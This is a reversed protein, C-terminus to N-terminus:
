KLIYADSRSDNLVKTRLEAQMEQFKGFPFYQLRKIIHWGYSTRIIGSIEGDYKLSYAADEFRPVMIGTGFRRIAGGNKSTSNDESYETALQGFDAGKKILKAVKKLKKKAQKVKKKPSDSGAKTMIHAVQLDGRNPRTAVVKILHYGFRTRVPQSVEGVPTKYAATEFPYVMRLCRFFGLDGSNTTANPDDSHRKAVASFEAGDDVIQRRLELIKNFAKLTDSPQATPKVRILIHLAHVETKMREFAEEVLADIAKEDKVLITDAAHQSYCQKSLLTTLLLLCGLRGILIIL